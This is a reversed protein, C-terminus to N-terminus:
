KVNRSIFEWIQFSNNQLTSTSVDGNWFQQRAKPSILMEKILQKEESRLKSMQNWM